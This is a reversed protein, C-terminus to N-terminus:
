SSYSKLMNIFGHRPKSGFGITSLAMLNIHVKQNNNLHLVYLSAWSTIHFTTTDLDILSILSSYDSWSFM